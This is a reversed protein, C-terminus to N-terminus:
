FLNFVVNYMKAKEQETLSNFNKVYIHSLLVDLYLTLNCVHYYFIKEFNFLFVTILFILKM